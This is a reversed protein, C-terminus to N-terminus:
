SARLDSSSNWTMPRRSRLAPRRTWVYLPDSHVRTGPVCWAPLGIARPFSFYRSTGDAATLFGSGELLRAVTGQQRDQLQRHLARWQAFLPALSTMPESIGGSSVEVEEPIRWGHTERIGRHVRACMLAFDADHSAVIRAATELATCLFEPPVRKTEAAVFADALSQIATKEDGALEAADAAVVSLWWDNVGESKARELLSLALSGDGVGIAAKAGYFHMWKM